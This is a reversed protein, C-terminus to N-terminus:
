SIVCFGQKGRRVSAGFIAFLQKISCTSGAHLMQCKGGPQPPLIFDDRSANNVYQCGTPVFHGKLVNNMFDQINAYPKYRAVVVTCNFNNVPFSARGMRAQQSWVIRSFPKGKDDM